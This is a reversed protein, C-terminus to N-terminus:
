RRPIAVFGSSTTYRRRPVMRTLTVGEAQLEVSATQFDTAVQTVAYVEGSGYPTMDPQMADIPWITVLWYPDGSNVWYNELLSQFQQDVNGISIRLSVLSATTADELSEIDCPFRFFTFGQFVLDQDYNVLRFPVPAGAIDVQFAMTFVHDSDLRNKEWILPGALLRPV